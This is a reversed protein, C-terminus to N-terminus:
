AERELLIKPPVPIHKQAFPMLGPTPLFERPPMIGKYALNFRNNGLLLNMEDLNM